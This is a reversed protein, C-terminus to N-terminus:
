RSADAARAQGAEAFVETLRVVENLDEESQRLAALEAEASVLELFRAAVELLVQNTTAASQARRVAVQRRAVLPEFFADALPSSRQVRRFAVPEAALPRAGGAAYLAAVHAHRIEAFSNQLVGQHDHYNAGARLSPLLLANARLQDALAEQIAQRSIGITPNDAEALRLATCLDIPLTQAPPPRVRSRGPGTPRGGARPAP